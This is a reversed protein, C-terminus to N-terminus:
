RRCSAHRLHGAKGHVKSGLSEGRGAPWALVAFEGPQRDVVRTTHGAKEAWRLYMRQLMEAWDQADTGGAGAQRVSPPRPELKRFNVRLCACRLRSGAWGARAVAGEGRRDCEGCCGSSVLSCTRQPLVWRPSAAGVQGSCCGDARPLVWRGPGAGMQRPCCGAGVQITLVAGRDDYPGGLLRRLEWAELARDLADCISAAEAAM